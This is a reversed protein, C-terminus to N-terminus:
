EHSKRSEAVLNAFISQKQKLLMTPSDFEVASGRDMVLIKDSDMVTHLRHAITICTCAAFVQRVSQQILRDTDADISATAEDMVIIKSQKLLARAICILQREGVSFNAGREDVSDDLCTVTLQVRKLAVWLADDACRQFPDINSRLTGSFLVPDQPIISIQERLDHVGISSIDIGDVTIRGSHIEALRMLAVVLSSKGAGTRGVVGIKEGGQITFSLQRLVRPMGVRYRLDVCDSRLSGETAMVSYAQVREVSVMQTELQSLYRVSMNLAPTVTFAYTLSVGALGSVELRLGLWCNASFNLFCARQNSDLLDMNRQVFSPEVKYARITALGDLTEGALANIPSRSISDLRQLERSTKVFYRLSTAYFWMLPVLATIFWPTVVAITTLTAAVSCVTTLVNAWTSPIDEDVAYIDKSLRNMIRGLPTADFFYMPARLVQSSMAQFLAKSGQLAALYLGLVRLYLLIAFGVHLGIFVMVARRHSAADLSQDETSWHSLWVTAAVNTAQALAFVVMVRVAVWTGGCAQIWFAFVPWPVDGTSRDENLVITSPKDAIESSPVRVLAHGPTTGFEDSDGEDDSEQPPPADSVKYKTVMSALTGNPVELVNSYTGHEVICGQSLVMVNDCHPLIQLNNTVMLVLKGGLMGRICEQFITAGVHADVSALVDDLLYIDADQYVARALAVRMRQGGSLNMGREGIETLDGGPLNRLDAELCCVRVVAIYRGYEYPLGFCINDRVTANQIFPQQAVYAVSGRVAVTGPIGTLQSPLGDTGKTCTADGLFGSLLTSKGSGVEGVVAFIGQNELRFSLNSIIDDMASARRKPVVPREWSFAAGDVLLGITQLTGCGVPTREPELLFAKLRQFSVNAEVIANIVNPLVFLPYRMIAILSLSTLATLTDISNGLLVYTTFAAITVLSPVGNFLSTSATRAMLYSTLKGLEDARFSAVRNAFHIEWAQLKLVKIGSLVEYCVKVRSDRVEMLQKQLARMVRAICLTVPIVFLIVALGAFAATGVHYCLLTCSTAILFPGYWIAHLDALLDQLRQADISMLNTIEGASHRAMAGVSLALSKQYVATVIASRVLLGTEFVLYLYNRFCLSQLIGGVFVLGVYVLGESVLATPTLLFAIVRQLVFPGIFQLTDRIFRLAGAAMFKAGFARFLAAALSPSTKQLEMDWCKRFRASAANARLDPNLQFLDDMELPRKNGLEMVPNM